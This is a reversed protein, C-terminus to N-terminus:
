GGLEGATWASLTGAEVPDEKCERRLALLAFSAAFENQSASEETQQARAPMDETHSLYVRIYVGTLMRQLDARERMSLFCSPLPEFQVDHTPCLPPENLLEGCVTAGEDLWPDNLVLQIGLATEVTTFSFM